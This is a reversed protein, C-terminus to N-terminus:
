MAYQSDLHPFQVWSVTSSSSIHLFTDFFGLSSATSASGGGDGYWWGLGWPLRCWPWRRCFLLPWFWSLCAPPWATPAGSCATAPPAGEWPFLSQRFPFAMQLRCSFQFQCCSVSDADPLQHQCQRCKSNSSRRLTAEQCQRPSSGDEQLHCPCSNASFM